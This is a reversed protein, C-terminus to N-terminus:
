AETNEFSEIEPDCVRRSPGKLEIRYAKNMVREIFADAATRNKLVDHWLSVPLQSGFFVSKKNKERTDMIELLDLSFLHDCEDLGFDDLILIDPANLEALKKDYCNNARADKLVQLLLPMRYYRVKYGLVCGEHGFACLVFTKGTGSAGTVVLCHGKRVWKLDSLMAIRSKSLNRATDFDLNALNASPERLSARKLANAIRTNMRKDYMAHVVMAFRDDFSLDIMAPLEDQRKYEDRMPYLRMETLQEYCQNDM